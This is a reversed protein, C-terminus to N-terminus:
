VYTSTFLNRSKYYMIVSRMLIIKSGIVEPFAGCKGSMNLIHTIKKLRLADINFAAHVSGIFLGPIIETPINDQVDFM